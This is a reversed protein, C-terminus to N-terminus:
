ADMFERDQIRGKDWKQMPIPFRFFCAMRLKIAKNFKQELKISSVRYIVKRDQAVNTEIYHIPFFVKCPATPCLMGRLAAKCLKTVKHEFTIGQLFCNSM